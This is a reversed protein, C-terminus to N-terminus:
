WHISLWGSRWRYTKIRRSSKLPLPISRYCLPIAPHRSLPINFYRLLPPATYSSLPIISDRHLLIAPTPIPPYCSPSIAPYWFLASPPSALPSAQCCIVPYCHSLLSKSVLIHRVTFHIKFGRRTDAKSHSAKSSIVFMKTFLDMDLLGIFWLLNVSLITPLKQQSERNDSYNTLNSIKEVTMMSFIKFGFTYFLYPIVPYLCMSLTTGTRFFHNGMQLERLTRSWARNMHCSMHITLESKGTISKM